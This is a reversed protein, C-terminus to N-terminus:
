KWIGHQEHGCFDCKGDTIKKELIMYGRRKIITKGCSPCITNEGGAGHMNGIYVYELGTEKAIEYAQNLKSAPTPPRDKLKYNPHFRSFHLPTDAGLSDHVFECLVRIEEPSDNAGPVILNTVEVMVGEEDMIKLTRKVPELQARTYESYFDQSFGKLDVNAADIYKCLERLPEENIYGCTVMINKIGNDHAIKAADYMYEYFITPESYTYAISQSNTEIAKQVLSEPSLDAHRSEEPLAQSLTWNQCFLCGLNCGVTAVSLARSGPMLHFIPKKEIPDINLSAIKGYVLSVLKGDVNARVGCIGRRGEDIICNWPCLHCQVQNEDLKEYWMAEHMSLNWKQIKSITADAVEGLKDIISADLVTLLMILIALVFIEYTKKRNM